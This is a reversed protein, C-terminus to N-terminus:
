KSRLVQKLAADLTAFMEKSLRDLEHSEELVKERNQVVTDEDQVYKLLNEGLHHLHQHMDIIRDYEQTQGLIEKGDGALWQSFHCREVTCFEKTVESRILSDYIGSKYIMHDLKFLLTMLYVRIDYSSDAIQNASTNFQLMSEEMVSVFSSSEQIAQSVTDTYGQMDSSEQQLSRISVSIDQTAKTTKEALNRVEDAVVAFGRGHEGARAAEIAANLALLNTQDAIDNILAIVSHIDNSRTVVMEVASSNSEVAEVMTTSNEVMRKVSRINEDSLQATEQVDQNITQVNLASKELEAQVMAYDEALSDSLRKIDANVMERKAIESDRQLMDLSNNIIDVVRHFAPNLGEKFIKRYFKDMSSYRIATNVEKAFAELADLLDNLNYALEELEGKESVKVMRHEFNGVSAESLFHNLKETFNRIRRIQLFLFLAIWLNLLGGVVSIMTLEKAIALAILGSLVIIIHAYNGYHLKSLSSLSTM